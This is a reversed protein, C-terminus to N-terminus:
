YDELEYDYMPGADELYIDNKGEFTIDLCAIKVYDEEENKFGYRWFAYTTSVGM